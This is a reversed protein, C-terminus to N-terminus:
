KYGLSAIADGAVKDFEVLDDQSFHNQWDGVVGKRVFTNHEFTKSLAQRFNEKTNGQIALTLKEDPVTVQLCDLISKLTSRADRLLDEYRFFRIGTKQWAMVFQNWDRATSILYDRWPTDFSEILGNKVCFDKDYYYKSVVVDRGDRVLHVIKDDSHNRTTQPLEHSKIVSPSSINLSPADVYWPHRTVDFLKFGDTVYIDRKPMDLCDGLMGVLWSGGSKPYEVVVVHNQM